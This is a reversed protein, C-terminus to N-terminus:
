DEYDALLSDIQPLLSENIIDRAIQFPTMLCFPSNGEGKGTTLIEGNRDYFVIHGGMVSAFNDLLKQARKNLIIRLNYIDAM